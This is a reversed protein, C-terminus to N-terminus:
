VPQYQAVFKTNLYADLGEVGGESGHGSDKVGGFPTEPTSIALSNVGVMGSELADSVAAATKESSTFAYAALGYDLSNARAIVEDFSKFPVIPAVPGFPEERMIRADDPVDALVTPEFFYGNNGQRQGGTQLKAGKDVADRVFGEIADIRRSNALPGMRTDAALGDGLKLGRAVETFSEVFKKYNSEHVFFRTPSVCVQGANRYKGGAAVAAVKAPDVDDFVIVPSHGGLEMTSRKMGKAALGMLMKGVATSGTFSIKRVVPSGIVHESVKSPVGFVLNLVGKPLGADELCRAIAVCSAPTEESPKIVLSCGAALAGAIKRMPTLVPFNWPTFAAAVGVPEKLVMQRSGAVRGPIIRGYARRGEEAYWDMIDASTMVEVKSEALVKGQEMTMGRAVADARERLLQAAKRLIASRDYASTRRWVEFGQKAAAIAEDLDAPSAHTLAAIPQETAPNVVEEGGGTGDRWRGDIFLQLQQM